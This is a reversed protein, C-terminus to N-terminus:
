RAPLGPLLRDRVFDFLVEAKVLNTNGIAHCCANPMQTPRRHRLEDYTSVAPTGEAFIKLFFDNM